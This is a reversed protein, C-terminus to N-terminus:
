DCFPIFNSTVNAFIVNFKKNPHGDGVIKFKESDEISYDIVSIGNKRLSDIFYQRQEPKLTDQPDLPHMIVIFEGGFKVDYIKKSEKIIELTTKIGKENSFPYNFGLYKLTNSKNIIQYVSNRIPRAQSLNCKFDCGHFPASDRPYRTTYFLDGMDRRIHHEIFVYVAYGGSGNVESILNRKLNYLMYSAGQGGGAYSYVRCGTAKSLYYPYTENDNVGSGFVFSGGFMLLPVTGQSSTIRRGNQDLTYSFNLIIQKNVYKEIHTTTNDRIVVHTVSEGLPYTICELLIVIFLFAILSLLLKKQIVLLGICFLVLEFVLIGTIQVHSLYGSQSFLSITYPNICLALIILIVGLLRHNLRV